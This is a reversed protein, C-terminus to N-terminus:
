PLGIKEIIIGGLLIRNVPAPNPTSAEKIAIIPYAHTQPIVRQLLFFYVVEQKDPLQLVKNAIVASLSFNVVDKNHRDSRRRSIISM